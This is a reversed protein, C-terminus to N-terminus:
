ENNPQYESLPKIRDAYKSWNTASKYTDVSTNPVYVVTSSLGRLFDSPITPPNTPLCKITRLSTCGYVAAVEITTCTEPIALEELSPCYEFIAAPLRTIRGLSSVRIIGSKNFHRSGQMNELYPLNIDMDLNSCNAFANGELVKIHSFAVSKLSTCDQFAGFALNTVNEFREFEDFSTIETNGNFIAPFVIVKNAQEQTTGVGDGLNEACIKEVVPDAFDLYVYESAKIIRDAYTSWNTAVIWDGYLNDPVVFQCTTSSFANVDVLTPVSTHEFFTISPLATCGSFCNLPINTVGKPMNLGSRLASDNMFCQNGISTLSKPIIIKKLSKCSKVAYTDLTHVNDPVSLETIHAGELSEVGVKELSLPLHISKIKAGKYASTYLITVGESVFVHKPGLFGEGTEDVMTEGFAYETGGSEIGKIEESFNQPNIKESTGKKERIADAVDTLFDTLNNEKSM